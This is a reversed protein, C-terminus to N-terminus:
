DRYDGDDDNKTAATATINKRKHIKAGGEETERRIRRLDARFLALLHSAIAPAMAEQFRPPPACDSLINSCSFSPRRMSHLPPPKSLIRGGSLTAVQSEPRIWLSFQLGDTKRCYQGARYIPFTLYSHCCVPLARPSPADGGHSIPYFLCANNLLPISICCISSLLSRPQPGIKACIRRNEPLRPGRVDTVRSRSRPPPRRLRGMIGLGGIVVATKHKAEQAQPRQETSRCHYM